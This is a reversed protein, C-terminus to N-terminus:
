RKSRKGTAKKKAGSKKATAKKASTKKVAAKKKVASKEASKGVKRKAATKKAQTKGGSKAKSKAKRRRPKREEEAAAALELVTEKPAAKAKRIPVTKGKPRRVLGTMAHIFVAADHETLVAHHPIEEHAEPGMTHALHKFHQVQTRVLDSIRRHKNFSARPAGIVKVIEM